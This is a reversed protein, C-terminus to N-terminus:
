IELCNENRYLIATCSETLRHAKPGFFTIPRFGQQTLVKWDDPDWREFDDLVIVGDDKLCRLSPALCEGRVRGDIVVIDFEGRGLIEDPYEDLDPQYVIDVGKPVCSKM